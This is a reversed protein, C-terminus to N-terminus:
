CAKGGEPWMAQGLARRAPRTPARLHRLAAAEIDKIRTGSLDFVKGIEALSQPAHGNLGFRRELVYQERPDLEALAAQLLRLPEARVLHEEPSPLAYDASRQLLRALPIDRIATLTRPLPEHKLQTVEAPFLDECLRGTAQEVRARMAPTKPYDKMQMWESVMTPNVGVARALDAQSWGKEQLLEVLHGNRIKAILAIKM